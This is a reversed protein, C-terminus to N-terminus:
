FSWMSLHENPIKLVKNVPKVAEDYCKNCIYNGDDELYSTDKCWFGNIKAGCKCKKTFVRVGKLSQRNKTM